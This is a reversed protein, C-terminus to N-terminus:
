LEIIEQKNPRNSWEKFDKLWKKPEDIDYWLNIVWKGNWLCNIHMKQWVLFTKFGKFTLKRKKVQEQIEFYGRKDIEVIKYKM